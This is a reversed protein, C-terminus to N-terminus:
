GSSHCLPVWVLMGNPTNQAWGLKMEPDRAPSIWSSYPPSSLWTDDRVHQSSSSSVLPLLMGNVTLRLGDGSRGSGQLGLARQLHHLFPYHETHLWKCFASSRSGQAQSDWSVKPAAPLGKGILRSQEQLWRQSSVQCKMELSTPLWARSWIECQKLIAEKLAPPDVPFLFIFCAIKDFM